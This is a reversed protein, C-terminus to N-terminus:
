QKSKLCNELKNKVRKIKVAIHNESLGFIQGIDRYLLGEMHLLIISRETGELDKICESLRIFQKENDDPEITDEINEYKISELKVFHSQKKRSFQKAKLCVNIAIRFIWTNINSQSKFSPLSKWINMLVEQFLDKADENDSSYSRCIRFIRDKNAEIANLYIYELENEM